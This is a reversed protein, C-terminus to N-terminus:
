DTLAQLQQELITEATEKAGAAVEAQLLIAVQGLAVVVVVQM